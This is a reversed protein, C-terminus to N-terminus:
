ILIWLIVERFKDRRKFFKIIRKLFLAIIGGLGVLISILWGCLTSIVFGSGPDIYGLFFLKNV